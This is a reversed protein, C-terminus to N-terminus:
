LYPQVLKDCEEAVIAKIHPRLITTYMYENTYRVGGREAMGLFKATGIADLEARKTFYRFYRSEDNMRHFIHNVSVPYHENFGAGLVCSARLYLELEYNKSQTSCPPYHKEAWVICEFPTRTRRAM